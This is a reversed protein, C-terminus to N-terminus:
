RPKVIKEFITRKLGELSELDKNKAPKTTVWFLDLRRSLALFEKEKAAREKQNLQDVKNLALLMKQGRSECWDLLLEEDDSWSRRVDFVLVLGMLNSRQSLYTEMMERWSERESASRQAFGYGPVDVIFHTHDWNFFNLLRTKGPKQSVKAITQGALANLLSSKGANSRGVFAVEPYIGEPYDKPLVASKIFTVPRQTQTKSM